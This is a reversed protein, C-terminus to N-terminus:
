ENSGITQDPQFSESRMTRQVRRDPRLFLYYLMSYMDCLCAFSLFACLVRQDCMAVVRPLTYHTSEGRLLCALVGQVRIM